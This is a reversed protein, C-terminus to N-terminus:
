SVGFRSRLEAQPKKDALSSVPTMEALQREYPFHSRTTPATRSLYEIPYFISSWFTSNSKVVAGVDPM